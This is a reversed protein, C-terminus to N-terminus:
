IVTCTSRAKEACPSPAKLHQNGMHFRAVGQIAEAMTIPYKDTKLTVMANSLYNKYEGYVAVKSNSGKIYGFAQQVDTPIRTAMREIAKAARKSYTALDEGERMRLTYWEELADSRDHEVHGDVKSTILRKLIGLLQLPDNTTMEAFEKDSTLIINLSTSCMSRIIGYATEKELAQKDTKRNALTIADKYSPM